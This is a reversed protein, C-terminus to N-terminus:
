LDACTEGYHMAFIMLDEFDIVGDPILVGGLGAIDCVPNWNPDSSTSGYAMAFIMLDEFDVKCDPPGNNASGFDGLIFTSVGEIFDPDKIEDVVGDGDQDLQMSFDTVSPGITLSAESNNETPVDEYVLNLMTDDPNPKTLHLEFVGQEKGKLKINYNFSLPIQYTEFDGFIEMVGDPIENIPSGDLYGIKRGYEDTILTDVSSFINILEQGASKLGDYILNVLDNFYEEILETPLPKLDEAWVMDYGVYSFIGTNLPLELIGELEPCNSDYVYIFATGIEKDTICQYVVLQHGGEFEGSKGLYLMILKGERLSDIIIQYEDPICPFNNMKQDCIRHAQIGLHSPNLQYVLINNRVETMALDLDNVSGGNPIPLSGEKYAIVTSAMGLCVGESKFIKALVWFIAGRIPHNLLNDITSKLKPWDNFGPNEFSYTEEKINFPVYYISLNKTKNNNETNVNSEAPNVDTIKIEMKINDGCIDESLACYFLSNGSSGPTLNKNDEKEVHKLEGNIYLEIQFSDIIVEGINKFKVNVSVNNPNYSSMLQVYKSIEVKEVSIDSTSVTPAYTFSRSIVPSTAGEDDKAQVYFTHNGESVSNFTHSTETTWTDPAPDDLGYYYGAIEGDPDDGIWTFTVDNYDITGSPGSTIQVIPLQNGISYNEFPIMLPYSDQDGDVSYPTDGIGDGEADSGTYDIWYNGLYNTYTNGSYTYTIEEPSSWTNASGPSIIGIAFNNLYVTNNKSSNILQFNYSINNKIIENNSSWRLVIGGSKSLFMVNEIKSQTTDIFLIGGQRINDITVGRVTINISSVVGVYGANTAADIVKDQENVLYYMPKGDLTNSSDIDEVYDSVRSGWIGFNYTNNTISNNRLYSRPAFRLYIGLGGGSINNGIIRNEIARNWEPDGFLMANVIGSGNQLLDNHAINNYASGCLHIGVGNDLINNESINNNDSYSLLSIGCENNRVVNDSVNCHGVSSGFCIGARNTGDAGSITFMSINVYDATVEFVHDDSNAAQVVTVEAGNESRITLHDKNVNVNETYTGDRVIITDGPSAADVAAQITSYNDPVYITDALAEVQSIITIIIAINIIIFIQILGTIFSKREAFILKLM